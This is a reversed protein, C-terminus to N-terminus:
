DVKTKRWLRRTAEIQKEPTNRRRLEKIYLDETMGIKKYYTIIEKQQKNLYLYMGGVAALAILLSILLGWWKLKLILLVSIAVWVVAGVILITRLKKETMTNKPAKINEQKLKQKYLNQQYGKSQRNYGYQAAQRNNNNRSM